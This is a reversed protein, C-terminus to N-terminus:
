DVLAEKLDRYEECSTGCLTEIVALQQRALDPKGQIVYAEGLYERVRAYRPDLKVSQLYYGIGEETRGLKRTAYGRYNLAKATHPQKLTDLVELSEEFRAAKALAYAYDSLADDTLNAAARKVCKKLKGDYVEGRKCTPTAPTDDGLAFAPAAHVLLASALLGALGTRAITKRMMATKM